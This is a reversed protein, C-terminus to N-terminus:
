AKEFVWYTVDDWGADRSLEGSKRLKLEPFLQLYLGGFDRKFLAGSQGHYPVETITEAYYEGCLVFRRSCRVIESMVIPLVEPPQHILVGTTFTLDFWGARFPLERAVGHLANVGPLKSRLLGLAKQNVDVGFVGSPDAFGAIPILNGGLNCGVELIRRAPFEALFSRWFPVRREAVEGNRDVYSNGFEGAWLRELRNAESDAAKMM